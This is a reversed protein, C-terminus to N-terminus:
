KLKKLKEAARKSYFGNEAVIHELITKAEGFDSVKFNSLALYWQAEPKFSGNENDCVKQFLPIAKISKNLNYWAVASYFQANVDDPNYELLECFNEIAKEYNKRSFQALGDKLIRDAPVYQIMETDNLVSSRNEKSVPTHRKFLDSNHDPDFFYLDTYNSIKLDYIYIDDSDFYPKVITNSAHEMRKGIINDPKILELIESIVIPAEPEAILNKKTEFTKPASSIEEPSERKTENSVLNYTPNISEIKNVISTRKPVSLYECTIHVGAISIFSLVIIFVQALTLPGTTSRVKADITRHIAVLDDSSFPLAAFGNVACACLDCNSIHM